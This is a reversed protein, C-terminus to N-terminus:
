PEVNFTSMVVEVCLVPPERNGLCYCPKCVSFVAADYYYAHPPFLDRRPFYDM